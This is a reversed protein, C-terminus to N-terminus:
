YIVEAELSLRTVTVSQGPGSPTVTLPSTQVLILIGLEWEVHRCFLKRRTILIPLKFWVEMYMASLTQLIGKMLLLEHLKKKIEKFNTYNIFVVHSLGTRGGTPRNPRPPMMM